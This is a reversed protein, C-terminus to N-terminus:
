TQGSNGVAHSESSDLISTKLFFMNIEILIERLITALSFSPNCYRQSAGSPSPALGLKTSFSPRCANSWTGVPFIERNPKGAAKVGKM